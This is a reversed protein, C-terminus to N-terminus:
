SKCLSRPSNSPVLFFQGIATSCMGLLSGLILKPVWKPELLRRTESTVFLWRESWTTFSLRKGWTAFSWREGWTAFSWREGWTLDDLVNKSNQIQNERQPNRMGTVPNRIGKLTVQQIGSNWPGPNRIGGAFIEWIGSDRWVKYVTASGPSPGQGRGENEPSVSAQLASSIKRLGPGGKRLSEIVPVGRGGKDSPRSGGSIHPSM